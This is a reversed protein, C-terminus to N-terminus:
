PAARRRLVGLNRKPDQEVLEFAENFGAKENAAWRTIGVWDALVDIRSDIVYALVDGETMRARLAEPNVKGDLNITRDHWYGITGTQVAGVWTEDGVNEDLWEVVQFHGHPKAGPLAFRALLAISLALSVMGIGGLVARGRERGLRDALDLGVSVLATILLPAVPAFYRSLFHQAGFFLAYYTVLVVGYAGYAILVPRFTGGRRIARWLFLGLIALTAAGALIGPLLMLEVRKPVPLMPFMTEFFRIPAMDANSGFQATMSQAYGSIPMISGFLLYNNILWPAAWLLSIVGMPVSEALAQRFNQEGRVQTDIFRTLLLAAVLFVGDNRSLFVLGCLSGLIIRGTWSFQGGRACLHGFYCATAVVMFTYLGTELANMTHFLAIPGVFWLATVLLPWVPADTQPALAARAFARIAVAGAVAFLTSLLLVGILSALKDGGTVMYPLTFFLTALPQVGNTPIEGGSVSLGNGIALNRAVTLMLYGDETVFFQALTEDSLFIPVLRYLLGFVLAAGAAWVLLTGTKMPTM